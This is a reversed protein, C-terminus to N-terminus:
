LGNDYIVLASFIVDGQKYNAVSFKIDILKFNPCDIKVEALFDDLEEKFVTENLSSILKTRTM